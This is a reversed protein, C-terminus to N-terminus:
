FPAITQAFRTRAGKAFRLFHTPSFICGQDKRKTDKSKCLPLLFTCGLVFTQM